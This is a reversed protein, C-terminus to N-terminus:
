VLYSSEHNKLIKVKKTAYTFKLESFRVKDKSVTEEGGGDYEILIPFM